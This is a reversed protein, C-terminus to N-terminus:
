REDIRRAAFEPVFPRVDGGLAAVERVLTSSIFSYKASTPLLITEIGAAMETNMQAMQLEYDFDSAFRLGKVIATIGNARCYNVLLGGILEVRVNVEEATAARLMEVREAPTFLSNKSTNSGVGVVVTDFIRAARQVIDLHGYTVPDFSGPCIATIM